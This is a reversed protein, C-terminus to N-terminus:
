HYTFFTPKYSSFHICNSMPTVLPPSPPSPGGWKKSLPLRFIMQGGVKQTWGGSLLLYFSIPKYSSFPFKYTKKKQVDDSIYASHRLGFINKLDIIKLKIFVVILFENLFPFWYRGIIVHM